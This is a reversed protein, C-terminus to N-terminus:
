PAPAYPPTFRGRIVLTEDSCTLQTLEVPVGALKELPLPAAELAALKPRIMASAIGGFVGAGGEMKLGSFRLNRGGESALGGEVGVKLSGGFVKAEVEVHVQLANPGNERLRLGTRTIKLGQEAAAATAAAHVAAELSHVPLSVKLEAGELQGPVDADKELSMTAGTIGAAHLLQRAASIAEEASTPPKEPLPLDRFM